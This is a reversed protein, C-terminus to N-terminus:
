LKELVVSFPLASQRSPLLPFSSFCHRIAQPVPLPPPYQATQMALSHALPVLFWETHPVPLFVPAPIEPKSRGLQTDKSLNILRESDGNRVKYFYLTPGAVTVILVSFTQLAGVVCCRAHFQCTQRGKVEASAQVVSPWFLQLWRGKHNRLNAVSLADAQPLSGPNPNLNLHRPVGLGFQRIQLQGTLSPPPLLRKRELRLSRLCASRHPPPSSPPSPTQMLFEPLERPFVRGGSIAPAWAQDLLKRPQSQSLM